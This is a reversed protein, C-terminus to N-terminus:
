AQPPPWVHATQLSFVSPANLLLFLPNLFATALNYCWGLGLQKIEIREPPHYKKDPYPFTFCSQTGMAGAPYQKGHVVKWM